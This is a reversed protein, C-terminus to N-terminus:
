ASACIAARLRLRSKSAPTAPATRVMPRRSMSPSMATATKALSWADDSDLTLLPDRNETGVAYRQRGIGQTSSACPEAVARAANDLAITTNGERGTELLLRRRARLPRGPQRRRYIKGALNACKPATTATPQPHLSGGMVVATIIFVLVERSASSLPWGSRRSPSAYDRELMINFSSDQARAGHYALDSAADILV